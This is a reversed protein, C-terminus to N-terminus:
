GVSGAGARRSRCTSVAGVLRNRGWIRNIKLQGEPRHTIRFLCPDLAAEDRLSDLRFYADALIEPVLDEGDLASGVM